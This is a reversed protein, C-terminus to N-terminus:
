YRTKLKTDEHNNLWADFDPLSTALGPSAGLSVIQPRAAALNAAIVDADASKLNICVLWNEDTSSAQKASCISLVHISQNYIDSHHAGVQKSEPHTWRHMVHLLWLGQSKNAMLLGHVNSSNSNDFSYAAFLGESTNAIRIEDQFIGPITEPDVKTSLYDVRNLTSDICGFVLVLSLKFLLLSFATLFLRTVSGM